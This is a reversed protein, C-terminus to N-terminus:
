RTPASRPQSKVDLQLMETDYYSAGISIEPFIDFFGSPKTTPPKM